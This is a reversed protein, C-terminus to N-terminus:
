ENSETEDAQEAPADEAAPEEQEAAAAEVVEAVEAEEAEAAAKPAEEAPPRMPIGAKARKIIAGVTESPQAGRPLWYDVRELDIHEYKHRPDYVGIIEIFRGDRPSRSDAVV